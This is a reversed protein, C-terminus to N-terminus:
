GKTDFDSATCQQIAVPNGFLLRTAVLTGIISLQAREYRQLEELLLTQLEHLIDGESSLARMAPLIQGRLQKSM